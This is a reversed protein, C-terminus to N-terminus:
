HPSTAISVARSSQVARYYVLGDRVNVDLLQDFPRHLPDPPPAMRQETRVVAAFALLALAAIASTFRAM